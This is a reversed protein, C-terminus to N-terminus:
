FDYRGCPFVLVPRDVKRCAELARQVAPVANRRSDPKAGFDTVRVETAGCSGQVASFALLGLPAWGALRGRILASNIMLDEQTTTEGIRHAHGAFQGSRPLGWPLIVDVCGTEGDARIALLGNVRM